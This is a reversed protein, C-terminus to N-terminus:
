DFGLQGVAFHGKLHKGSIRSKRLHRFYGLREMAQRMKKLWHRRHSDSQAHPTTPFTYNTRVKQVKARLATADISDGTLPRPKSVELRWRIVWRVFLYGCLILLASIRLIVEGCSM